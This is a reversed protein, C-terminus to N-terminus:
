QQTGRSSQPDYVQQPLPADGDVIPRHAEAREGVAVYKHDAPILDTNQALHLIIANSQALVGSDAFRVVCHKRRARIRSARKRAARESAASM